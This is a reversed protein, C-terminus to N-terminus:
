CRGPVTPAAHARLALLNVQDNGRRRIIQAIKARDRVLDVHRARSGALSIVDLGCTELAEAFSAPSEGAAALTRENYEVIVALSPNRESMRAMGRLTAAENGEVDIKVVDILPWGRAEAWADLSTCAVTFTRAPDPGGGSSAAAESHVSSLMSDEAGAYFTTTGMTEGIASEVVEVVGAAGNAEINRKLLPLLDPSPEFAFVHGSSGVARASELAFYGLHAGVDVITMGPETVARLAASVDRDHMGMALMQAHFSPRADHFIRLGDILFPRDPDALIGGPFLIRSVREGFSALAPAAPGSRDFLWAGARHATRVLAETARRRGNVRM